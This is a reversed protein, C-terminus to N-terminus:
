VASQALQKILFKNESARIVAGEEDVDLKHEVAVSQRKHLAVLALLIVCDALKRQFRWGHLTTLHLPQAQQRMDGATAGRGDGCAGPASSDSQVFSRARSRM